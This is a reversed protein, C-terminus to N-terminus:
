SNIQQQQDRQVKAEETMKDKLWSLYTLSEYIPIKTVRDIDLIKEGSM